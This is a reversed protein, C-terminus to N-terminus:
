AAARALAEVDVAELQASAPWVEPRNSSVVLRPFPTFAALLRELRRRDLETDADDLLLAPRRDSAALRDALAAMLLLGVAKREGASASRRAVAGGWLIEIEDRHSGVLPQRRASEAATARALAAAYAAEGVLAEAPSPRYRLTIAPLALATAALARTLSEALAEVFAARAAAIAAGERAVLENWAALERGGGGHALLARKEGLAREFRGLHALLAPRELVLGRDFFRRRVAPPGGVLASEAETWVLLPFAALQESLRGSKGDLSRTRGAASSWGL